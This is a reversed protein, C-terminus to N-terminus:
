GLTLRVPAHDSAKLGNKKKRFDRVVDVNEVHKRVVDTTLFHDIRLGNNFRFAM